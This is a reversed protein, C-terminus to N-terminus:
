SLRHEMKPCSLLSRPRVLQVNALNKVSPNIVHQRIMRKMETNLWKQTLKLKNLQEGHQHTQVSPVHTMSVHTMVDGGIVPWKQIKPLRLLGPLKQFHSVIEARVQEYLRVDPGRLHGGKSYTPIEEEPVQVILCVIPWLISM